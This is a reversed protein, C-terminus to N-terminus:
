ILFRLILSKPCNIIFYKRVRNQSGAGIFVTFGMLLFCGRTEKESKARRARTSTIIHGLLPGGLEIPASILGRISPLKVSVSGIGSLVFASAM